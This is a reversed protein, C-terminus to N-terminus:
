KKQGFIRRISGPEDDDVNMPGYGSRGELQGRRYHSLVHRNADRRSPDIGIM